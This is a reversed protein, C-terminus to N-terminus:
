RQAEAATLYSLRSLYNSVEEAASPTLGGMTEIFQLDGAGRHGFSFNRLQAALYRYHQGGIAPIGTAQGEGRLGHCDKCAQRYIRQGASVDRSEGYEPASSRVAATLYSSLDRVAQPSNVDPLRMVEHM